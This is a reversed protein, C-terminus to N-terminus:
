VLRFITENREHTRAATHLTLLSRLFWGIGKGNERKATLNKGKERPLDPTGKGKFYILDLPDLHSGTFGLSILHIWTYDFSDM